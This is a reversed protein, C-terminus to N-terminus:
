EDDLSMAKHRRYPSGTPKASQGEAWPTEDDDDLTYSRKRKIVIRQEDSLSFGHKMIKRGFFAMKSKPSRPQILWPMFLAAFAVLNISLALLNLGGAGSYYSKVETIRHMTEEVEETMAFEHPLSGSEDQMRHLSLQNLQRHWTELGTRIDDISSLLFVNWISLYNGSHRIWNAAETELEDLQAPLLQLQLAKHRNLATVKKTNAATQQGAYTKLRDEAYENYRTFLSSSTQLSAKIGESIPSMRDRVNWLHNIPYYAALCSAALLAFTARELVIRKDFKRETAKLQQLYLLAALLVVLTLSSALIGSRIDGGAQYTTGVFVSFGIWILSLFALIHGFSFKLNEHM